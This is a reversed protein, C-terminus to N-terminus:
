DLKITVTMREGESVTDPTLTISEIEPRPNITGRVFKVKGDTGYKARIELVEPSTDEDDKAELTFSVMNTRDSVVVPTGASPYTFDFSELGDVSVVRVDEETAGSSDNINVNLVSGKEVVQDLKITVTM